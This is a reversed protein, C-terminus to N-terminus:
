RIRIPHLARLKNVEQQLRNRYLAVGFQMPQVFSGVPTEETRRSDDQAQRSSRAWEADNMLRLKVGAELVDLMTNPVLVDDVLDDTLAPTGPVIPVAASVFITGTETRDILRLLLGTTSAGTWGVTGRTLRVNLEPWRTTDNTYKRAVTCLGYMGAFAAPLEVAETSEGVTIESSAIRYIQPGWSAIEALMAEYIDLTSFRPNILVEANASHTAQESDLWGRIVTCSTAGVATVRMLELDISITAGAILSNTVALSLPITTTTSDINDQLVNTETRHGAHLQRRIRKLTASVQTRAM